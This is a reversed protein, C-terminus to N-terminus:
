GLTGIVNILDRGRRLSELIQKKEQEPIAKSKRLQRESYELLSGSLARFQIMFFNAYSTVEPVSMYDNIINVLAEVDYSGDNYKSGDPYMFCAILRPIKKDIEMGAIVKYDLFQAATYSAPYLNVVYKTGNLVIRDSPITKQPQKSLFSLTHELSTYTGADISRLENIPIGTVTSMLKLEKEVDNLSENKSIASIEEFKKWTIDEWKNPITYEM